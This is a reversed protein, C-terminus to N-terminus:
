QKRRPKTLQIDSIYFIADLIWPVTNLVAINLLIAPLFMIIALVNGITIGDRYPKVFFEKFVDNGMESTMFVFSAFEILGYVFLAIDLKNM